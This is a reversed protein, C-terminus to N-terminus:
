WWLSMFIRPFANLGMTIIIDEEKSYIAIGKDRAILEMARLFIRIDAVLEPNREIRTDTISEYRKLRPIIFNAITDRLSWTESDDFGRKQRQKKYKIERKDDSGTLSFCINPIGLYKVDVRREVQREDIELINNDFIINNFAGYWMGDIYYAVIWDQSHKIDEESVKIWYYGAKRM